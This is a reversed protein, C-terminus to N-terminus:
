RMFFKEFNNEIINELEEVSINREQAAREYVFKIFAPENTKGRMPVPAMYPCDTELLIREAPIKRFVERLEESTKGKWTLAGGFACLGGMELVEDLFKLGGAYCHFLLQLNKHEHLIKMADDMAERIHLIVPMNVEEAFNLQLEFIKKQIERPSLDYHYDLGIEGVAVVKEDNVLKYFEEPITEYRKAEHPHIGISAYCTPTLSFKHAFEVAELSDDLDCGVIVLKKINAEDARNIIEQANERLEESNIHCHSDIFM